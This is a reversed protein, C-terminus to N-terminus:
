EDDMQKNIKVSSMLSLTLPNQLLLFCSICLEADTAAIPCFRFALTALTDRFLTSMSCVTVYRLLQLSSACRHKFILSRNKQVNIHIIINVIVIIGMAGVMASPMGPPTLPLLYVKFLRHHNKYLLIYTCYTGIPKALLALWM